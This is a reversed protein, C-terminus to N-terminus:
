DDDDFAPISTYDNYDLVARDGYDGFDVDLTNGMNDNPQDGNEVYDRLFDGEPIDLSELFEEEIKQEYQKAFLKRDENTVIFESIGVDVLMKVLERKTDTMERYRSKLLNREKSELEDVEKQAKEKSQLIMKFVLDKKLSEIFYRLSVGDIESLIKFFFGKATDRMFSKNSYQISEIQLRIEKLTKKNFSTESLIDLTRSTLLLFTNYDGKLSDTFIKNFEKPLGLSINEEIEKKTIEITDIVFKIPLIFKLNPSPMIKEDLKLPKQMNTPLRKTIWRTLQTGFCQVFDENGLTKGPNLYEISKQIKFMISNIEKIQEPEEYRERANELLTNFKMAFVKLFPLSEEKVKQPKSQIIKSLENLPGHTSPLEEMLKKTISIVSELIPSDKIDTSDRPYGSVRFPKNNINRRPILFPQHTQLLIILAPICLISQIRDQDQKSVKRAKLSKTIERMLSLIPIMQTEQPLIQLTALLLFLCSEGGHNLDFIDKLKTLSNTFTTLGESVYLDNDLSEYTSVLHGKDDYEDTAILIESSVEEGCYKCARKGTIISTWEIFFNIPNEELNGRLISLSHQCIVFIGKEFYQKNELDLDQLIVEISEVKDHSTRLTDNLISLIIKRRESEKLVEFKEYKTFNTQSFQQFLKLLKKYDSQIETELSEKWGLKDKTIASAKEQQIHGVTICTGDEIEFGHKDLKGLRYLGSNLFSDFNSTLHQCIDITSKSHILGPGEPGSLAVLGNQSSRSLLLKIIFLGSDIQNLLWYRENFCPLWESYVKLLIESPEKDNKYNFELPKITKSLHKQDAPPFRLKWLDWTIQSLKVDYVKLYKLGEGYPDDTRPIAHEIISQINPFVDILKYDTKYFGPKESKLFTHETPNPIKVGRNGLYYGEINIDDQESLEIDILDFSGDDNIIKKSRKFSSLVNIPKEGESNVCMGIERNGQSNSSYPKPLSKILGPYYNSQRIRTSEFLPLYEKDFSYAKLKYDSYVPFIWPINIHSRRENLIYDTDTVVIVKEYLKRIRDRDYILTKLETKSPKGSTLSKEFYDRLQEDITYFRLEQPKTVEESFEINELIEYETQQFNLIYDM